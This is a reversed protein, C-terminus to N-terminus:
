LGALYIEPPEAFGLIVGRALDAWVAVSRDGLSLQAAVLCGQPLRDVADLLVSATALLHLDRTAQARARHATWLARFVIANQVVIEREIVASALAKGVLTGLDTTPALTVSPVPSPAVTAATAAARDAAVQAAAAAKAAQQAAKTVEKAAKRKAKAAEEERAAAEQAARLADQASVPRAAREALSRKREPQAAPAPAPSAAAAPAPAPAPAPAAPQPPPAKAALGSKKPAAAAPAPEPTPAPRSAVAKQRAEEALRRALDRPDELRLPPTPPEMREPPLSLSRKPTSPPALEDEFPPADDSEDDAPLDDAPAKNQPADPPPATPTKQAPADLPDVAGPPAPVYGMLLPDGDKTSRAM